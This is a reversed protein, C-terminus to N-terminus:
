VTVCLHVASLLPWRLMDTHPIPLVRASGAEAPLDAPRGADQMLVAMRSACQKDLRMLLRAKCGAVVRKEVEVAFCPALSSQPRSWGWDGPIWSGATTLADISHDRRVSGETCPDGFGGCTLRLTPAHVLTVATLWRLLGM